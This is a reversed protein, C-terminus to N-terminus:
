RIIKRMTGDEYVEFVVGSYTENVEQGALNIYRIIKKNPFVGELAIPGYLDFNGDIDYQVLRYYVTINKIFNDLYSYNIVSQSNGASSRYGIVEWRDGDESREIHFHSSNQESATSWKLYNFTEYKIGEFYLLEVPLAVSIRVTYEEIEGWRYTTTSYADTSPTAGWVSLVRMLVDGTTADLPVTINQSTSNAPASLLVNETTQFVWDGNWDIWASYGQGSSFTNTATVSLTYQTGKTVEIIQSKFNEYSDGDNTSTNNINSLTVNSIYDGDQVGFTGSTTTYPTANNLNVTVINSNGSPCTGDKSTTRFYIQSQQVNMIITYPNTPNSVSGAVSTFNNYSWELKTISGGNGTTSLSTADNVTTNTKTSSLAGGNTPTTCVTISTVTAQFGDRNGSIDSTFRLTLQGTANEATISSPLSTGSLTALLPSSTNPGDYIYLYDFSAELNFSSFNLQLKKTNDSPTLTVTQDLSNAYYDTEGGRDTITYTLTSTLTQSCNTEFPIITNSNSNSSTIGLDDLYWVNTGSARTDRIRIYVNVLNLSTLDITRKNYTTTPNASYTNRTTWNTNDTSTEVVFNHTASTGSRRIWFTVVSPNPIIPTRIFDGQGNFSLNNNGTRLSVTSYGISSQGWTGGQTPLAGNFSEYILYQNCQSNLFSYFFLTFLLVFIKKM